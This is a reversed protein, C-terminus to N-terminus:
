TDRFRHSQGLAPHAAIFAAASVGSGDRDVLEAIARAWRRTLAEDFKDLVDHVECARRTGAVLREEAEAGGYRRILVWAIRVHQEHSVGGGLREGALWADTLEDDTM